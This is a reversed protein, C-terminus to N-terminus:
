EKKLWVVPFHRLATLLILDPEYLFFWSIFHSDLLQSNKTKNVRLRDFVAVEHDCITLQPYLCIFIFDIISECMTSLM